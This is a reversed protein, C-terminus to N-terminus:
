STICSVVFFVSIFVFILISIFSYDREQEFMSIEKILKIQLSIKQIKLSLRPFLHGALIISYFHSYPFV